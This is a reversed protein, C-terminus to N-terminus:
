ERHARSARLFLIMTCFWAFVLLLSLAAVWRAQPNALLETLAFALYPIAFLTAWAYTHRRGRVLGNLPALLPLVAIVCFPWPYGVLIWALLSAAVAVWLWITLARSASRLSM